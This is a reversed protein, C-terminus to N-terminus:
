MQSNEAECIISVSSEQQDHREREQSSLSKSVEQEEWEGMGLVQRIENETWNKGWM